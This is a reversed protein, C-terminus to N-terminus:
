TTSEGVACGSSNPPGGATSNLFTPKSYLLLLGIKLSSLKLTSGPCVRPNTPWDPHQTSHATHQTSSLLHCSLTTHCIHCSCRAEVSSSFTRAMLHRSRRPLNQLVIGSLGLLAVGSLGLWYSTVATAPSGNDCNFLSEKLFCM